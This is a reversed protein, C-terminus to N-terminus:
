GLRGRDLGIDNSGLGRALSTYYLFESGVNSIELYVKDNEVDFYQNFYGAQKEFQKTFDAISKQQATANLIFFLLFIALAPLRFKIM